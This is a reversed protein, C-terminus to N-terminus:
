FPADDMELLAAEAETLLVTLLVAVRGPLTRDVVLLVALALALADVGEVSELTTLGEAETETGGAIEELRTATAEDVIAPIEDDTATDPELPKAGDFIADAVAAIGDQVLVTYWCKPLPKNFSV